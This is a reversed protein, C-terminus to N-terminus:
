GAVLITLSLAYRQRHGTPLRHQSTCVRGNNLPQFLWAFYVFFELLMKALHLFHELEEHVLQFSHNVGPFGRSEDIGIWFEAPLQLEGQRAGRRAEFDSSLDM